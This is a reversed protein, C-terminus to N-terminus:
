CNLNSSEECDDVDVFPFLEVVGCMDDDVVVFPTVCSGILVVTIDAAGLSCFEVSFVFEFSVVVPATVVVDDIVVVKGDFSGCIVDFRDSSSM